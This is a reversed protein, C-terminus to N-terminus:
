RAARLQARESVDRVATEHGHRMGGKVSILLPEGNEDHVAVWERGFEEVAEQDRRDMEGVRGLVVLFVVLALWKM